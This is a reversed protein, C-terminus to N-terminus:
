SASVTSTFFSRSVPWAGSRDEIVFSDAALYSEGAAIVVTPQVILLEGHGPPRGNSDRRRTPSRARVAEGRARMCRDQRRCRGIRSHLDEAARQATPNTIQKDEDIQV